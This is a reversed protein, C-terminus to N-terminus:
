SRVMYSNFVELPTKYNLRKRPRSNLDFEVDRLEENNIICFDTGKPFYSRIRMNGNENGGRQWSSYPDAFYSQIGFETKIRTHLVHEHGNDLTISKRAMPPLYQYITETCIQWSKDGVHDQKKLRGSISDPSWGGQLKETVYDFIKKSKLPQKAKWALPKRSDSIRQAYMPEYVGYHFKNRDLERLITAHNRKLRRAIERIKVGENRWNAILTRESLNLKTHQM